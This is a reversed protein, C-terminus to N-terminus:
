SQSFTVISEFFQHIALHAHITGRALHRRSRACAREFKIAVQDRTLDHISPNGLIKKKGISSIHPHCAQKPGVLLLRTRYFKRWDLKFSFMVWSNFSLCILDICEQWM